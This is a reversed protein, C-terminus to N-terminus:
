KKIKLIQLFFILINDSTTKTACKDPRKSGVGSSGLEFGAANCDEISLKIVTLQSGLFSSILFLCPIALKFFM